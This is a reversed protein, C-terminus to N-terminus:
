AESQVRLTEDVADAVSFRADGDALIGAAVYCPERYHMQELALVPMAVMM